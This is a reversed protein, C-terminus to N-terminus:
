VRAGLKWGGFVVRSVGYLLASTFMMVGAFVQVGWFNGNHAELIAGAIPNGVIMPISAVLFQLGLRLPVEQQNKTIQPVL